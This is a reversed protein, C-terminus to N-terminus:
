AYNPLSAVLAADKAAASSLKRAVASPQPKEKASAVAAGVVAGGPQAGANTWLGQWRQAPASGPRADLTALVLLLLLYLLRELNDVRVLLARRANAGRHM